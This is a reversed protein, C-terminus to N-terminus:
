WGSRGTGPDALCPGPFLNGRFVLRAARNSTGARLEEGPTM